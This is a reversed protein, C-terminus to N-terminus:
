VIITAKFGENERSEFSITGNLAAIRTETNQLGNKKLLICGRGNDSYTIQIKSGEQSFVLAVSSAKSHKRMNTMLEQLVRYIATRKIESVDSWDIKALNRTVVTVLQNKYGLLLDNLQRGYDQKLDVASNERSIDRTKSYIKEIEDLIDTRTAPSNELSVMVKYMDNAVEDHVKKAIRAETKYVEEIKAKKYRYRFIFYSAIMLMLIFFALFQYVLRKRFEIEQLLKSAQTNKQEEAVNYKLYANKNAALQKADNLSDTLRKYAQVKPDENIKMFLSLADLIFSSSNLENAVELAKDAYSIAISKENKILYYEALHKYSSYLGTLYNKDERIKLAALLNEIAKPADIKSQVAGLNDLVLAMQLSDKSNLSKQYLLSYSKIASNYDLLDKFINAKNNLLIISDKTKKSINLAQDFAQLAANPNNSAGYIRGLQNYLGVRADILTDKFAMSEILTLAEVIHNESDFVNGIKFEGIALLRLDSIAKLTDGKSLHIEKEKSYFHIGAPLHEPSVPATIAKYYYISSDIETQAISLTSISLILVFVIAHFFPLSIKKLKM